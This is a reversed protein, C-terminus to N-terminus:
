LGTFGLRSHGVFNSERLDLEELCPLLVPQDLECFFPAFFRGNVSRVCLHLRRVHHVLRLFEIMGQGVDVDSIVCFILLDVLNSLPAQSIKPFHPVTSSFDFSLKQLAPFKLNAFHHALAGHDETNNGEEQIYAERVHPLEVIRSSTGEAPLGNTIVTITEASFVKHLM